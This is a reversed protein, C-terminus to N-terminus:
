NKASNTVFKKNQKLKVASKRCNVWIIVETSNKMNSKEYM